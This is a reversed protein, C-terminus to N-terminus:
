LLRVPRVHACHTTTSSATRAVSFGCPCIAAYTADSPVGSQHLWITVTPYSRMRPKRSLPCRRPPPYSALLLRVNSTGTLVSKLANAFPRTRRDHNGTFIVTRVAVGYLLM